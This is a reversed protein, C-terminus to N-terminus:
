GGLVRGCNDWLQGGGAEDGELHGGGAKPGPATAGSEAEDQSM